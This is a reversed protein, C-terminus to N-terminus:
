NGGPDDESFIEASFIEIKVGPQRWRGPALGAKVCTQDLFTERGWKWEVAVQPLLLGRRGDASIIIGHKGVEIEDPNEIERVPTLVSIEISLDDIEQATVPRFRSDKFAAARAMEEVTEALPKIAEIYGICGRLQGHKKLTVFGGRKEGLVQEDPAPPPTSTRGLGTDIASRALKLLYVRAARSLGGNQDLGRTSESGDAPDATNGSGRPHEANPRTANGRTVVASVYGVVRNMDGSIQGSHAYRLVTCRDAGLRSAAIMAAATPGGGCAETSRNELARWLGQADFAGLHKMFIADLGRATADNHFHSLDTSAVILASRGQLAEGLAQGLAAITAGSQEGMVIPVLKFEGLVVQLFPLQVELSHEGHRGPISKHGSYDLKILNDHESISRALERDVPVVGLPTEYAEGPYVACFRFYDGHSPAIVVVTEFQGRRLLAYGWAAVQGSYAYGAHPSVLAVVEGGPDGPSADAIFSEIQARLAVPNDTYFQGAVAPRRFTADMSIGKGTAATLCVAAILGARAAYKTLIRM